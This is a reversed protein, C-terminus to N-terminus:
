IVYGPFTFSSSTAVEVHPWAALNSLMVAPLSGMVPLAGTVYGTFNSAGGIIDLNAGNGLRVGLNLVCCPM